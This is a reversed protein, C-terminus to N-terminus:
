FSLEDFGRDLAAELERLPGPVYQQRQVGRCL